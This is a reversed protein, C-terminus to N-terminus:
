VEGEGEGVAEVAGVGERDEGRVENVVECVVDIGDVREM